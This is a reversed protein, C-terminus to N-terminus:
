QYAHCVYADSLMKKDWYGGLGQAYECAFELYAPTDTINHYFVCAEPKGSCWEAVRGKDGWCQLIKPDDTRPTCSKNYVTDGQAVTTTYGVAAVGPISRDRLKIVGRVSENPAIHPVSDTTSKRCTIHGDEMNVDKRVGAEDRCGIIFYQSLRRTWEDLEIKVPDANEQKLVLDDV